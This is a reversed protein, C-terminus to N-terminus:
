WLIKEEIIHLSREKNSKVKYGKLVIEELAKECFGERTNSKIANSIEVM